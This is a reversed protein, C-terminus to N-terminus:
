LVLPLPLRCGLSSTCVGPREGRGPWVLLVMEQWMMRPGLGWLSAVAASRLTLLSPAGGSLPVCAALFADQGAPGWTPAM